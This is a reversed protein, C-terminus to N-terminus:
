ASRVHFIYQADVTVYPSSNRVSVGGWNVPSCSSAAKQTEEPTCAPRYYKAEAPWGGDPLRKSELLELAEQCRPDGLYGAEAMVKLGMLIDYHWYAPYHLQVFNKDIVQGNSRRRFLRRSLFFEACREVAAAARPDGSLRAYRSLARMPILSENFSSTSAHPHKDCNWGGDPWQFRVLRDALEQVRPDQLGLTLTAYLANGEQSACRRTRGELVRISQLHEKSFLWTYVQDLLPQLTEDGAPYCLDALCALVWHAGRWKNYPHYPLRGDPLRGALLGQALESQRAAAAAPGAAASQVDLGKLLVQSKWELLADM